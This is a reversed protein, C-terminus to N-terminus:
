ESRNGNKIAELERELRTIRDEQVSLTEAHETQVAEVREVKKILYGVARQTAMLGSQTIDHRDRQAPTLSTTDTDRSIGVADRVRRKAAHLRGIAKDDHEEPRLVRYGENREPALRRKYAKGLRRSVRNMLGYLLLRPKDVVAELQDYTYLTDFEIGQQIIYDFLRDVDGCHKKPEPACNLDMLEM